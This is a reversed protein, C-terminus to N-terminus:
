AAAARRRAAGALVVLGTGLLAWTGPEPVVAPPPPASALGGVVVDDTTFEDGINTRVELRDFAALGTVGFFATAGSSGFNQVVTGVTAAGNYFTFRAEGLPYPNGGGTTGLSSLDAGFAGLANSFTLTYAPVAAGGGTAFIYGNNTAIGNGSVTGTGLPGFGYTPGATNLNNAVPTVAAATFAARGGTGFYVTQAALPRAAGATLVAAAALAAATASGRLLSPSMAHM